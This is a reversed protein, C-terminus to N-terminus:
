CRKRVLELATASRFERQPFTLQDVGPGGDVVTPITFRTASAVPFARSSKRGAPAASAAESIEEFPHVPPLPIFRSYASVAGWIRNAYFRAYLIGSIQAPFNPKSDGLWNM